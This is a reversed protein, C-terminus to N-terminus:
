GLSDFRMLARDLLVGYHHELLVCFREWQEQGARGHTCALCQSAGEMQKKVTTHVDMGFRRSFRGVTSGDPGHVWVTDGSASIQVEFAGCVGDEEDIEAM